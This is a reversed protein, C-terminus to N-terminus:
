SHYIQSKQSSHQTDNGRFRSDLGVSNDTQFRTQIGNKAGSFSLSDRENDNMDVRLDSNLNHTNYGVISLDRWEPNEKEILELKWQRNRKKLQKERAIADSIESFWELHVLINLGYKKTFGDHIGQKHEAVRREIDNTVGIYITGNRKIALIYVYYNKM